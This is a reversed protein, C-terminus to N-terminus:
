LWPISVETTVNTQYDNLGEMFEEFNVKKDRDDDFVKFTRWVFENLVNSLEPM